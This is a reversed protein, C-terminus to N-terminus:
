LLPPARDSYPGRYPDSVDAATELPIPTPNL